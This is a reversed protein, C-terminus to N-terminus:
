TRLVQLVREKLAEILLPHGNLAPTVRYHTIGCQRALAAYSIGLEYLTEVHDSVFALPYVLMQQTQARGKARIVDETYPKLWELPGVRSQYCLTTHPWGLLARVSEYTAEIQAQYPDGADVLKRPLGHASFLVEVRDPDPAPFSALETRLTEAVAQQYVPQDYWERILRITPRYDQRRCEREFENRSSGTTTHSYQPYLPLLVVRAYDRRKLQRVVEATLPHWYRMCVYVDVAAEVALARQLAEAQAKTHKLLPSRGGIAIYGRMAERARRRSFIAAFPRQTLRALPLQFIDPDSFLNYLFPQVADLCDPGGLNLLVVATRAQM